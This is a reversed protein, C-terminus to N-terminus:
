LTKTTFHPSPILTALRVEFTATKSSFYSDNSSSSSITLESTSEFNNSITPGSGRKHQSPKHSGNQKENENNKKMLKEEEQFGRRTEREYSENDNKDVKVQNLHVEKLVQSKFQSGVLTRDRQPRM